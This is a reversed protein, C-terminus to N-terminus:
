QDMGSESPALSARIQAYIDPHQEDFRPAKGAGWLGGGLPTLWGDAACWRRPDNGCKRVQDRTISGYISLTALVKLAGIKWASLTRPGPVGAPVDPIYEPLRCRKLPNWDFMPTREEEGVRRFGRHAPSFCEIGTVALVHLFACRASPVLVARHDPGEPSTWWPSDVGKIAQELVKWNAQLKAEVGLQLGDADVLLMDWGETEPYVTWGKTVAWASFAACLDAETAFTARSRTM